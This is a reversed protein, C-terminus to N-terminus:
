QPPTQGGNIFYEIGVANLRVTPATSVCRVNLLLALGQVPVGEYLARRTADTGTFGPSTADMLLAGHWRDELREMRTGPVYTYQGSPTEARTLLWLEPGSEVELALFTKSVSSVANAWTRADAPYAVGYWTLRPAVDTHEWAQGEVFSLLRRTETGVVAEPTFSADGVFGQARDSYRVTRAPAGSDPDAGFCLLYEKSFSDYGATIRARAYDAALEAGLRRCQQQTNLDNTGDRAYRCVEAQDACWWYLRGGRARVSNPHRTGFRGALSNIYGVVQSTDATIDGGSGQRVRAVNIGVSVAGQECVAVLNQDESQVDDASALAKIAGQERALAQQDSAQWTSLGNLLTGAVYQASFGLADPLEVQQLALPIQVGPRGGQAVDLWTLSAAQRAGTQAATVTSSSVGVSEENKIGFFGDFVGKKQREHVVTTTSTSPALRFPPVMSEIPVPTGQAYQKKNPPMYTGNEDDTNSRDILPFYLTALFCDGELQVSPQSYSRQEAAGRGSRVIPLRPGREYYVDSATTRPSFIEIRAQTRGESDTSKDPYGTWPVELYDGRQDTITFTKDENLFRIQDGPKWVYGLGTAPFNGIDVLVKEHKVHIVDVVQEIEDVDGNTDNIITRHGLYGLVDAARGQLFYPTRDNPAVLFQYSRAWSPIEVNLAVPDTTTLTARISRYALADPNQRPVYVTVPQSCGGARGLEDYFQVVVRYTSSEHFTHHQDKVLEDRLITANPLDMVERYNESVVDPRPAVFAEDYSIPTTGVVYVTAGNREIPAVPLWTSDPNPYTGSALKYYYYNHLIETEDPYQPSPQKDDVLLLKLDAAYANNNDTTVEATFKPEPTRYGVRTNGYWLRNRAATLARAPWLFEFPRTADDGEVVGGKSLGVFDYTSPFTGTLGRRLAEIVRWGTDGPTRVLLEVERVGAPPTPVEMQIANTQAASPLELVDLWASFPALVTTEGDVYHWRYSFQWAQQPVLLLPLAPNGTALTVRAVSLPRMPPVKVVHLGWPEAALRTAPFEGAALRNLPLNRVEGDADLYLFFNDVVTLALYAAATPAPLNLGEWTLLVQPSAGPLQRVVSHLDNSNWVLWAVGGNTNPLGVAELVTNTGAPLPASPLAVNGRLTTLYGREPQVNLLAAARGNEVSEPATDTDLTSLIRRDLPM